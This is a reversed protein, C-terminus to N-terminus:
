LNVGLPLVVSGCAIGVLSPGSQPRGFASQDSMTFVVVVPLLTRESSVEAVVEDGISEAHRGFKHRAQESCRVSERCTLAPDVRPLLRSRGDGHRVANLYRSAAHHHCLLDAPRDARSALM